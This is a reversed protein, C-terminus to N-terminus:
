LLSLINRLSEGFDEDSENVFYAREFFDHPFYRLLIYMINNFLEKGSQKDIIEICNPHIIFNLIYNLNHVWWDELNKFITIDIVNKFDKEAKQAFWILFFAQCPKRTKDDFTQDPKTFNHVRENLFHVQLFEKNSNM